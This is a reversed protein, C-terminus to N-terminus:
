NDGGPPFLKRVQSRQAQVTEIYQIPSPPLEITENVPAVTDPATGSSSSSSSSGGSGCAMLGLFSTLLVVLIQISHKM